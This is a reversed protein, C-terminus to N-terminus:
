KKVDYFCMKPQMVSGDKVMKKITKAVDDKSEGIATAIDGAKMAGKQGLTDLIKKEM